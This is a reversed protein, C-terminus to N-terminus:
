FAQSFPKFDFYNLTTYIHNCIITTIPPEFIQVKGCNQNLGWGRYTLVLIKTLVELSHDWPPPPLTINYNVWGRHALM